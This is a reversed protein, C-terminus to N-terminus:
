CCTFEFLGVQGLGNCRGDSQQAHLEQRADREVFLVQVLALLEQHTQFGRRPHTAEHTLFAGQQDKEPHTFSIHRHKGHDKALRLRLPNAAHKNQPHLKNSHSNICNIRGHLNKKNLYISFLCM